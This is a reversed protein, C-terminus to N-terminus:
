GPEAAPVDGDPASNRVLLAAAGASAWALLACVQMVWGFADVFARRFIGQVAAALETQGVAAPVRAEGFNRAEALIGTRQASTLAMGGIATRVEGTFRSIVVAGLVAIALVAALRSVANNVGSATGSSHAPVSGMVASTLPVVTITMGFGFVLIGPFFGSWYAAPGATLGVRSLLWFGGGTVLPGAILPLRAGWRDTLKGAWRSLLVLPVPLPMFALGAQSPSYGQVQVLNLALFFTCASLAGYLLLTLLNAGSFTGSRFLSLPLMPHRSAWEVRVFLLLALVGGLLAGYIRPDSFGFRPLMTFGYTLGTLGAAALGAGPYDLGQPAQQDYSEPVYRHTLWLTLLGIPLNLFFVGRWLGADALAGGLLPGAVVM